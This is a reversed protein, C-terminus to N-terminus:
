PESVTDAAHELVAMLSDRITDTLYRVMVAQDRTGHEKIWDIMMNAAAGVYFRNLFAKYDEDLHKGTRREAQELISTSIELFDTYLFRKLEDRGISDYACSLMYDNDAIYNMVFQVAEEYDVMLDFHRVVEVAAQELTWKLLAYTDSFHYYFTKRNVECTQILESVTIKQFPKQGMAKKLAESLTRKTQLSIESHKM